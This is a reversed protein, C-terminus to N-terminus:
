ASSRGSGGLNKSKVAVCLLQGVWNRSRTTVRGWVSAGADAWSLGWKRMITHRDDASTRDPTMVQEALARPSREIRTPDVRDSGAVEEDRLLASPPVAQRNTSSLM